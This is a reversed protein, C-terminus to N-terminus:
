SSQAIEKADNWYKYVTPKSLGSQVIVKAKTAAPDERLVEVMKSICANRKSTAIRALHEERPRNNRKAPPSFPYFGLAKVISNVTQWNNATYGKLANNVDRETLPQGQQAWPTQLLELFDRKVSSLPKIPNVMMYAVGALMFLSSYRRGIKVEQIRNLITNYVGGTKGANLWHPKIQWGSYDYACAKKSTHSHAQAFGRSILDAAKLKTLDETVEDESVSGNRVLEELLELQKETAPLKANAERRERSERALQQTSKFRCDDETLMDREPYEESLLDRVTLSLDHPYFLRAYDPRSFLMVDTGYKTLSGPARFCHNLSACSYDVEADIGELLVEFCRYLGKILSTLKRNRVTNQSFVQLPADFFYWCHIGNGTLTIYSPTIEQPLIDLIYSFVDPSIPDKRDVYSAGDIDVCIANLTRQRRRWTVIMEQNRGKILPAFTGQFIFAPKQKIDEIFFLLDAMSEGSYMRYEQRSSDDYPLTSILIDYTDTSTGFGYLSYFFQMLSPVPPEEILSLQYSENSSVFSLLEEESPNCSLPVWGHEKLVSSLKQSSEENAM